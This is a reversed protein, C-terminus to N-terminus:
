QLFLYSVTKKEPLADYSKLHQVFSSIVSNEDDSYTEENKALVATIIDRNKKSEM